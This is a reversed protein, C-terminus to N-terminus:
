FVCDGYSEGYLVILTPMKSDMVVHPRLINFNIWKSFMPHRSASCPWDVQVVGENVELRLCMMHFRKRRKM